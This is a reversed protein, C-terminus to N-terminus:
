ALTVPRVVFPKEGDGQGHGRGFRDEATMAEVGVPRKSRDMTSPGIPGATQRSAQGVISWFM